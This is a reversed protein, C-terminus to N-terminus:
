HEAEFNAFSPHVSFIRPRRSSPYRHLSAPSSYSAKKPVRREDFHVQRALFRRRLGTLGVDDCGVDRDEEPEDERVHCGRDWHKQAVDLFAESRAEASTGELVLMVEDSSYRATSHRGSQCVDLTGRRHELVAMDWEDTCRLRCRVIDMGRVMDVIVLLGMRVTDEEWVLKLKRLSIDARFIRTVVV